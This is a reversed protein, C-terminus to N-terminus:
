TCHIVQIIKKYKKEMHNKMKMENYETDTYIGSSCQRMTCLVMTTFCVTEVGCGQVNCLTLTTVEGM